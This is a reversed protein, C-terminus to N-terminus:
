TPRPTLPLPHTPGTMFVGPNCPMTLSGPGGTVIAHTNADCRRCKVFVLGTTPAQSLTWSWVCRNMQGRSVDINGGAPYPNTPNSGDNIWNIALNSFDTFSYDPM